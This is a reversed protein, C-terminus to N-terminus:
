QSAFWDTFSRCLSSAGYPKTHWHSAQTLSLALQIHHPILLFFLKQHRRQMLCQFLNPNRTHKRIFLGTKRPFHYQPRRGLERHHSCHLYIPPISSHGRPSTESLTCSFYISRQVPESCMIIRKYFSIIWRM